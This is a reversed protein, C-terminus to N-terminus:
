TYFRKIGIDKRELQSDLESMKEIANVDIIYTNTFLDLQIFGLHMAPHPAPNANATPEDKNKSQGRFDLQTTRCM